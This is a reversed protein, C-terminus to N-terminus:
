IGGKRGIKVLSHMFVEGKVARPNNFDRFNLGLSFFRSSKQVETKRFAKFIM